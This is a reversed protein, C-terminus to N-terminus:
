DPSTKLFQNLAAAREPPLRDTKALFRVFRKFSVCRAQKDGGASVEMGLDLYTQLDAANLDLLPRPPEQHLLYDTAFREINARHQGVMKLSLGTRTLEKEFAKLMMSNREGISQSVEGPGALAPTLATIIGESEQINRYTDKLRRRINPGFVVRYTTMLGDYTIKGEFPLLVTTALVPLDPGVVEVFPSHLGLVGYAHPPESDDLFVSFKQLHRFIYFSGTKRYRWGALLVLDAEALDDPNAKLYRDLLTNDAFLAERLKIAAEPQVAQPGPSAPFDPLLGTQDNTFKLLPFWLRYFRQTQEPELIM